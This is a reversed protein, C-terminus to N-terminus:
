KRPGELVSIRREHDAIKLDHEVDKLNKAGIEVSLSQIQKTQETLQTTMRAIADAQKEQGNWILIGQGLISLAAGVLWPLPIERGVHIPGKDTARHHMAPEKHSAGRATDDSSM